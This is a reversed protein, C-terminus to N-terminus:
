VVSKRDEGNRALARLLKTDAACLFEERERASNALLEYQELEAALARDQEIETVDDNPRKM